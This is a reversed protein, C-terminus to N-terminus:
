VFFMSISTKPFVHVKVQLNCILTIIKIFVQFSGVTMVSMKGWASEWLAGISTCNKVFTNFDMKGFTQSENGPGDEVLQRLKQPLNISFEVRVLNSHGWPDM